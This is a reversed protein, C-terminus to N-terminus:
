AETDVSGGPTQPEESRPTKAVGVMAPRLLRDKIVYGIQAVQVVTGPPHDATEVEFMAQHYNHDFKEGEPNVPEIGHKEMVSLLEKETMEIGALFAALSEDERAEEPLSDIARRLNDRISLIDRAFNTIAYKSTDEREREARRRVNETEALARLLKDKLDANEAELASIRDGPAEPEEGAVGEEGTEDNAAKPGMEAETVDPRTEASQPDSNKDDNM